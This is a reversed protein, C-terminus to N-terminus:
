SRRILASHGDPGNTIAWDSRTTTRWDCNWRDLLDNISLHGQAYELLDEFQRDIYLDAATVTHDESLRMNLWGAPEGVPGAEELLDLFAALRALLRRREPSIPENARWKRVASVSVECLRAIESWGLGRDTALEELLDEANSRAKAATRDDLDLSRVNRRGDEVDRYLLIVPGTLKAYCDALMSITATYQATSRPAYEEFDLQSSRASTQDTVTM